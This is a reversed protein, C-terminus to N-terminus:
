KVEDIPDFPDGEFDIKLGIKKFVEVIADHSDITYVVNNYVETLVRHCRTAGFGFLKNLALCIAAFFMETAAEQGRKWGADYGVQYNDELDKATIGNRELEKMKAKAAAGGIELASQTSLKGAKIQQEYMRVQQQEIAKDRQAQRAKQRRQQRNLGAM